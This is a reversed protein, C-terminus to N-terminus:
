NRLYENIEDLEDQYEADLHAQLNLEDMVIFGMEALEKPSRQKGDRLFYTLIETVVERNGDMRYEYECSYDNWDYVNTMRKPRQGLMGKLHLIEIQGADM